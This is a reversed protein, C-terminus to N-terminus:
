VIKFIYLGIYNKQPIIKFLITHIIAHIVYHTIIERSVCYNLCFQRAAIHRRIEALKGSPEPNHKLQRTNIGTDKFLLELHYRPLRM